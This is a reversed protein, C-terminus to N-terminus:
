DHMNKGGVREIVKILKGANAQVSYGKEVELRAANIIENRLQQSEILLSIKDVWDSDNRALFGNIADRIIENNIGVASAVAPIGSAMYQLLKTGSKGRSWEDDTLPMVGIDFDSINNAETELSWEKYTIPLGDIIGGKAGIVILEVKYREALKKFAFFINELYHFTGQSGIWGIKVTDSSLDKSQKNIPYNNLDVSTPIVTIEESFREAYLKLFNNSVIIHKSLRIIREIKKKDWLLKFMLNPRKNPPYLYITDDFDFIINSNIVAAIKEFIPYLHIIMDRQLFIVDYHKLKFLDLIRRVAQFGYFYIKLMRNAKLFRDPIAPVIDFEIGRAKLYEAYQYVRYRASAGVASTQTLFLVKM